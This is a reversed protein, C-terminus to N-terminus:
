QQRFRFFIRRGATGSIRREHRWKRAMERISQQPFIAAIGGGGARVARVHGPTALGLRDGLGASTRLGLLQPRLWSLRRRLADANRADLPGVLLARGGMESREGEFGDLGQASDALVALRMGGATRTLVYEVGDQVVSSDSILDLIPTISATM